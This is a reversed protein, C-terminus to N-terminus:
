IENFESDIAVLKLKLNDMASCRFGDFVGDSIHTELETAHNSNWGQLYGLKNKSTLEKEWIDLEQVIERRLAILKNAKELQDKEVKIVEL